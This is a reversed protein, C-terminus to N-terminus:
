PRGKRKGFEGNPMELGARKLLKNLRQQNLTTRPKHILDTIKDMLEQSVDEHVPIEPPAARGKFPEM